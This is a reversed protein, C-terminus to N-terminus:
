KRDTCVGDHCAQCLSSNHSTKPKGARRQKDIAPMKFGFYVQGFKNYLNGLVKAVEEPYWMPREFRNEIKCIDCQQGFLKYACYGVLSNNAEATTQNDNKDEQNSSQTDNDHVLEFLEYWFVVRGKMSTWGHGCSDCCFRVKASDIFMRFKTPFKRGTSQQEPEQPAEDTKVNNDEGPGDSAGPSSARSGPRETTVGIQSSEHNSSSSGSSLTVVAGSDCDSEEPDCNDGVETEKSLDTNEECDDDGQSTALSEDAEDLDCVRIIYRGKYGVITGDDVISPNTEVEVLSWVIDSAFHSFLQEFEEQWVQDM